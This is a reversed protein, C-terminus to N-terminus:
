NRPLPHSVTFINLGDGSFSLVSLGYADLGLIVLAIVLQVFRIAIFGKPYVPFHERGAPRATSYNAAVM